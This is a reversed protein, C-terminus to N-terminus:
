AAVAAQRDNRNQVTVFVCLSVNRHSKFIGDCEGDVCDALGKVPDIGAITPARVLEHCVAKNGLNRMKDLLARRAHHSEVPGYHTRIGERPEVRRDSVTDPDDVIRRCTNNNRKRLLLVHQVRYAAPNSVDTILVLEQIALRSSLELTSLRLPENETSLSGM